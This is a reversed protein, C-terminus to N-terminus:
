PSVRRVSDTPLHERSKQKKSSNTSSQHSNRLYKTSIVLSATQDQTKRQPPKKFVLETKKSPICRSLNEIEDQTLKSLKHIELLTDMEEPNDLKNTYLEKYYEMILKKIEKLNTTIDGKMGSKLLLKGKKEETHM